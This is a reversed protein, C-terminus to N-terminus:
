LFKYFIPLASPLFKALYACFEAVEAQSWKEEKIILGVENCEGDHWLDTLKIHQTNM